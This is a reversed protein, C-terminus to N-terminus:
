FVLVCVTDFRAAPSGLRVRVSRIQRVRGYAPSYDSSVVEIVSGAPLDLAIRMGNGAEDRLRISRRDREETGHTEGAAATLLRRDDPGPTAGSDLVEVGPGLPLTLTASACRATETSEASLRDVIGLSREGARLTIRREHIWPDGPRGFGRHRGRLEVGGPADSWDLVEPFAHETLRFLGDIGPEIENQERDDLQMTAHAATGRLRNRLEPQGTYSGSGPDTVWETGGVWISPAMVDNHTHNGVGCTGVPACNVFVHLDASRMVFVAADEFARSPLEQCASRDGVTAGTLWLAEVDRAGARGALEARDLYSGGVSLLHRHDHPMAAAWGELPLLRGDDNDGWQPATGDPRTYSSVFELMRTLRRDFTASFPQGSLRALWAAHLFLETVLRHYPVSREFDVGDEHVQRDIETEIAQHAFRYWDASQRLEPLAGAIAFLGVVDSLYHNSTLGDDGVELNGRIHRGHLWLSRVLERLLDDDFEPAQRMLGVIAVWVFARIGVDMTCTWNVGIGRPNERIWDHLDHAIRVACLRRLDDRAAGDAVQPAFWWAQALTLLHQCRSLEWPYKVDSGDGRVTTVDLYYTDAPWDHGSRPDRHWDLGGDSRVAVPHGLLEFRNDLVRGALELVHRVHDPRREVIMKVRPTLASFLPGRRDDDARLAAPLQELPITLERSLRSWGPSDAVLGLARVRPNRRTLRDVVAQVRVDREEPPLTRWQDIWHVIMKM